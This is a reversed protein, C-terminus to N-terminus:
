ANTFDWSLVLLINSGFNDASHTYGGAPIGPYDPHPPPYSKDGLTVAYASFTSWASWPTLRNWRDNWANSQYGLNDLDSCPPSAKHCGWAAASHPRGTWIEVQNVMSVQRRTIDCRMTPWVYEYAISAAEAASATSEWISSAWATQAATLAATETAASGRATRHYASTVRLPKTPDGPPGPQVVHACASFAAQLDAFIWEGIVDGAQMLGYRMSGSGTWRRFTFAGSLTWLSGNSSPTITEATAAFRPGYDTLWQQIPLWFSKAQVDTYATIPDIASQGIAQRRESWALILQNVFALNSWDAGIPSTFPVSM